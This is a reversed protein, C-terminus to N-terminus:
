GRRWSTNRRRHGHVAQREASPRRRRASCWAGTQRSRSRLEPYTVPLGESTSGITSSHRFRNTEDFKEDEKPVVVAANCVGIAGKADLEQLRALADYVSAEKVVSVAVVHEFSYADELM